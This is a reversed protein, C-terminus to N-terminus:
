WIFLLTVLFANDVAALVALYISSSQRSLHTGVFVVFSLTNGFVGIFIVMPTVYKNLTYTVRQFTVDDNLLDSDSFNDHLSSNYGSYLQATLNLASEYGEM